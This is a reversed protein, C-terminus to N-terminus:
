VPLGTSAVRREFYRWLVAGLNDQAARHRATADIVEPAFPVAGGFPEAAIQLRANEEMSYCNLLAVELSEGTVVSGHGRMQCAINDGLTTSLQGAHEDTVVLKPDDWLPVSDNLYFAQNIVPVFPRNVVGLLTSDPAHLHAVCLSDPRDRHIRIHIPREIPEFHTLEGGPNQLLNGRLDYVFVQDARLTSKEFGAGPTILVHETEPVRMSIHGFAGIYGLSAAIRSLVALKRREDWYADQALAARNAAEAM